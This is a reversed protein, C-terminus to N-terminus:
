FLATSEEITCYEGKTNSVVSSVVEHVCSYLSYILFSLNSLRRVHVKDLSINCLAVEVSSSFGADELSFSMEKTLTIAIRLYTIIEGVESENESQDLMVFLAAFINEIHSSGSIVKALVPLANTCRSGCDSYLKSMMSHCECIFGLCEEADTVVDFNFSQEKLEEYLKMKAHTKFL